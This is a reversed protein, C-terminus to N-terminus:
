LGKYDIYKLSKKKKDAMEWFSENKQFFVTFLHFHKLVNEYLAGQM